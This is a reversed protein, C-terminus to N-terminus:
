LTKPKKQPLSIVVVGVMVLVTGVVQFANITEGLFLYALILTSVPGVGGVIATNSAGIRKIGESILFSPIVTAIVAMVFSYQYVPAPYHLLSQESSLMKHILVGATASLMALTTFSVTGVKAILAGGIVLYSAYVLASILVYAIGVYYMSTAELSANDNYFVIISIGIYTLLLAVLQNANLKKKFIFRSILVVFTPYTFLILRELSASIYSLGKFDLWSAMYYGIVGLSMTKFVIAPRLKKVQNWKFFLVAVFFPLSFCMRLALLSITDIDYAYALKIFVSKTSFCVVGVAVILVGTIKNSLQTKIAM